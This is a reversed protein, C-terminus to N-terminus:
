ISGLRNDKKNMILKSEVMEKSTSIISIDEISGIEIFREKKLENLRILIRYECQHAFEEAKIFPNVEIQGITDYKKYKVPEYEYDINFKKLEETVRRLFEAPNTILLACNGFELMRDDINYSGKKINPHFILYLSLVYDFYDSYTIIHGIDVPTFEFYGLDPHNCEIKKLEDNIILDAGEYKDGREPETNNRFFELAGFRIKGKKRFDELHEKKGFKVFM